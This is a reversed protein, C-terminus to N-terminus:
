ADTEDSSLGKAQLEQRQAEREEADHQRKCKWCDILVYVGVVAFVVGVIIYWFSGGEEDKITKSILDYGLYVLYASLVCRLAFMTQSRTERKEQKRKEAEQPTMASKDEHHKM